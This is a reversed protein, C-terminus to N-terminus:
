YKGAERFFVIEIMAFSLRVSDMSQTASYESPQGDTRRWPSMKM